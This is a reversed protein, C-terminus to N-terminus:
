AREHRTVPRSLGGHHHRHDRDGPRDPQAGHRRVGRVSRSLRHCGRALLEQDPQSVPQDSAARDGAAGAAGRCPALDPRAAARACLGGRDARARGGPHRRARDRRHLIGHLHHARDAAGRVGAASAPRRRFQLRATAAERVHDSLRDRGIRFAAFWGGACAGALVVPLAPRHPGAPAQGLHAARGRWCDWCWSGSRCLGGRRWFGAGARHDRSQQSLVRRVALPKPATGAAHRAGGPVLVPDPVPAAPQPHIGCLRRRAARDALQAVAARDRHCLRARDCVRDRVGSVLLTNLLGVLFVRAYSDTENYPILSQNVGFGATNELFGFGSTINQAALNSRANLVFETGLWLVVALLVLQYGLSRVKPNNYFAVRPPAQAREAESALAGEAGERVGARPM